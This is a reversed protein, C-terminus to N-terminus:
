SKNDDEHYLHVDRQPFPISIGERDFAQKVKEILEFRVPWYESTNVWPRAIINVSSDALESVAILPPPERHVRPEATIIASIIEKAKGTDDSYSIGFLLDLRRTPHATVNTIVDGMIAGNPVVVKQNDPTTLETNFISIEKVTGSVGGATVFDGLKFPRFLILMVGASFNGLSDKLALGVALGAVGLLALFSTTNIGLRDLAALGVAALLAYYAVNKLFNVLTAEVGRQEMFRGLFRSIFGAAMKGVLFILIAAVLNFLFLTAPELIAAFQDM